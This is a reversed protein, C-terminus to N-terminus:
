RATAPRTCDTPYTFALTRDPPRAGVDRRGHSGASMRRSAEASVLTFGRPTTKYDLPRGSFPDTPVPQVADALTSPFRGIRAKYDLICAAAYTARRRAAAIDLADMTYLPERLGLERLVPHSRFARRYETIVSEIAARRQGARVRTQVTEERYVHLLAPTQIAMYTRNFLTDDHADPIPLGATAIAAAVEGSLAHNIDAANLDSSLSDRVVRGVEPNAGAVVLMRRYGADINTEMRAGVSAGILTPWSRAHRAASLALHLTKAAEVPKGDNLQLVAECCLAKSAERITLLSPIPLCGTSGSAGHFGCAPRSAAARVAAMYGHHKAFATRLMAVEAENPHGADFISEATRVMDETWFGAGLERAREYAPAADQEPPVHPYCEEISTAVGQARAARIEQWMRYPMVLNLVCAGILALVALKILAVARARKMLVVEKAIDSTALSRNPEIHAKAAVRHLRHPPSSTSHRSEPIPSRTSRRGM